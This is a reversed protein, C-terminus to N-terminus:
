AEMAARAGNAINPETPQEVEGPFRAIQDGWIDRWHTGPTEDGRQYVSAIAWEVTAPLERRLLLEPNKVVRHLSAVLVRDPMVASAAAAVSLAGAIERLEEAELETPDAEPDVDAASLGHEADFAVASLIAVRNRCIEKYFDVGWPSEPETLQPKALTPMLREM